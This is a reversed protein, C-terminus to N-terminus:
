IRSFFTFEWEGVAVAAVTGVGAVFPISAVFGFLQQFFGFFRASTVSYHTYLMDCARLNDRELNRFM